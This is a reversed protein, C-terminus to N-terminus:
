IRVVVVVAVELQLITNKTLEALEKLFIELREM